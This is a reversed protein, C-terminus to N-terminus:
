QIECGTENAQIATIIVTNVIDRVDCGRSLDNVPKNLGQLIPGIAVAEGSSRVAKYTNNGTNLDPFILINAEGAIKSNPLKKQAISKNTAADYQIPGEVKLQPYQTKLLTTAEIVKQVDAGSGSDGTSYSLMAINPEIGFAKASFATCLAIQSLQVASPDQVIACDAFIMVQTDLCMFFLSSVISVEPKTKIIQLAPRVTNATTNVAGSVMGHAYGLHVMMTAFYGVDTQMTEFAKDYTLGKHQRLEFLTKAFLKIDKFELPDIIKAGSIDFGLVQSKHLIKKENGILVIDVLNTDLLTQTAELIRADFSEPMVITKKNGKLRQALSYEFMIPTMIDSQCHSLIQELYNQDVYKQFLGNVVAIKKSDKSTIKPKIKSVKIAADYTNDNIKLIPIRLKELGNLVNYVNQNLEMNGTLLIGSISPSNHSFLAPIVGLIIDSRDSPVILLDNQEIFNLMNELRMAAVKHTYILKQMELPTGFLKELHLEKKLQAVTIANLKKEEALCFVEIDLNLNKIKTNLAEIKEENIRNVFTIFHNAKNKKIANHEIKITELIHEDSKEFCNLVTIIPSNFNKAIKLNLEFEDKAQIMNADVGEILVFDYQDELKKIKKVLTEYIKQSNNQSLLSEADELVFGYADNYKQELEFHKLMFNIDNDKHEKSDILPKFFAIKNYKSKLLQMLGIAVMLKGSYTDTSLIYLTKNNIM